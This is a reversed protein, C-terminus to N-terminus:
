FHVVGLCWHSKKHSFFVRVQKEMWNEVYELRWAVMKVVPRSLGTGADRFLFGTIHNDNQHCFVRRLAQSLPSPIVSCKCCGIKGFHFVFNFPLKVNLFLCVFFARGWFVSGFFVWFM